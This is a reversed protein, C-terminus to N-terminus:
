HIRAKKRGVYTASARLLKHKKLVLARLTADHRSVSDFAFAAQRERMIEAVGGGSPERMKRELAAVRRRREVGILAIQALKQAKQAFIQTM